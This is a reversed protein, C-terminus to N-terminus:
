VFWIVLQYICLQLVKPAYVLWPCVCIWLIWWPGSKLFGGSERKYYSRHNVVPEAGFYFKEHSEWTLYRWFRSVSIKALKSAMIEQLGKISIPNFSFNYGKNLAKWFYTAHWRFALIEFRNWVKLPQFDFHCRSEQGKKQGYSTSYISLQIM